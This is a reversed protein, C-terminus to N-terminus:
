KYESQTMQSFRSKPSAATKDTRNTDEATLDVKIALDHAKDSNILTTSRTMTDITRKNIGENPKQLVFPYKSKSDLNEEVDKTEDRTEELAQSTKVSQLPKSKLESPIDPEVTLRNKSKKEWAYFSKTSQGSKTMTVAVSTRNKRSCVFFPLAATALVLLIIALMYASSGFFHVLSPSLLLYLYCELSCYSTFLVLFVM